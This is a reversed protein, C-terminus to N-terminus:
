PGAERASRTTGWAPAPGDTRDARRDAAQTDHPRSDDLHREFREQGRAADAKQPAAALMATANSQSSRFSVQTPLGM